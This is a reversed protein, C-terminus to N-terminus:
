AAPSTRTATASAAPLADRPRRAARASLYGELVTMSLSWLSLAYVFEAPYDRPYRIQDMTLETVLGSACIVLLVWVWPDPRVRISPPQARSDVRVIFHPFLLRLKFFYRIRRAREFDLSEHESLLSLSTAEALRIWEQNQPRPM